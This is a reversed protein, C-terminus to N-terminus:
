RGKKRGGKGGSTGGGAKPKNTSRGFATAKPAAKKGARKTDSGRKPGGSGGKAASGSGASGGRKPGSSGRKPGGGRAGGEKDKFSKARGRRGEGAEGESSGGGRSVLSGLRGGPAARRTGHEKGWITGQTGDGGRAALGPRRRPPRGGPGREDVPEGEGEGEGAAALVEAPVIRRAYVTRRMIAVDEIEVEIRDGLSVTDGSRAGVASLENETVEYRDPGLAEYRVLVDVFPEDLTVYLGGSTVASVRGAFTEGVKERMFLARYLDVVEREVEMAARERQSSGTASDRLEEVAQPSSDPKEGRLIAKVQRHVCLDPYRRIPSTFHLYHDSALGFHGVNVIDYAAQKLSRLLLSELVQKKPHKAIQELFRAVGKPALMKDLDVAVGLTEGIDALRELKAEDPTGHVRYIAPARKGTLFRAVLENALLMLEEIMSYARRIGPRTARRTVGTPAGTKPDVHIRPEPLDLDLAGRAMRAKRLKESLEALVVLEGKMAEAQASQPSEPDFGLARAVGGYTLMAQSRMVGEVIEFEKVRGHADLEAIVCLTYRDREPVLSCLDAALASPLMPIARDPLYITCGRSQAEEDLPSGEVVYESVDAIAVYARYGDGSRQVWVADDHDRADEPDITPLPVHRLDTRGELSLQRLRAAMREAEALAAEPHEEEIQERVLIKQVETEPDGPPGLVVVVEGECLEDVFLPWRKVDVVAADGDKADKAIRTVIVPSRLRTDDPELWASKGKRRLVGAVRPSRRAVVDEIRGEVGRSSRNVVSVRVKDGHVAGALNDPAIYVDEHGVATVFGFGRPNVSLLGEWVSGAEFAASHVKFRNGPMRRLTGDMSLQDLLELFHAQSKEPVKCLAALERAHLARSSDALCRVVDARSPLPKPM